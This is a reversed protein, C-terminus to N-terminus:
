SSAEETTTEQRVPECTMTWTYREPECTWRTVVPVLADQDEDWQVLDGAETIYLNRPFRVLTTEYCALHLEIERDRERVSIDVSPEPEGVEWYIPRPPTAYIFLNRLRGAQAINM